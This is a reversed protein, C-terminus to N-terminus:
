DVRLASMIVPDASQKMTLFFVPFHNAFFVTGDNSRQVLSIGNGGFGGNADMEALRQCDNILDSPLIGSVKKLGRYSIRNFDRAGRMEFFM